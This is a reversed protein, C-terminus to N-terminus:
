GNEPRSSTRVAALGNFRNHSAAAESQSFRPTFSLSGSVSIRGQYAIPTQVIGNFESQM